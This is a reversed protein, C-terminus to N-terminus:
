LLDAVLVRSRGTAEAERILSGYGNIETVRESPDAERIRLILSTGDTYVIAHLGKLRLARKDNKVVERHVVKRQSTSYGTWEGELVYRTMEDEGFEWWGYALGLERAVVSQRFNLGPIRVPRNM